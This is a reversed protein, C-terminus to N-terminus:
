LPKEGCNELATELAWGIFSSYEFDKYKRQGGPGSLYKKQAAYLHPVLPKAKAGIEVISRAAQLAVWPRDDLVQSKLVVFAEDCFGFACLAEAAAIQVSPSEDNLTKKLLEVLTKSAGDLSRSAIIAWYRAGAENSSLKEEIMQVDNRGVLSAAEMIQELDYTQRNQALEYPTSGESRIMYEAEPLFGVDRTEKSWNLLAKGLRAKVDAFRPDAAINQIEFPDNKLDYLEEIPKSDFLRAMSEPLEGTAKMRLLERYSDKQGGQIVGNRIYPLYPMYNRIYIYRDDMVARSMEFLDDARSREGYVYERAPEPQTGLFAQGHMYEPKGMGLMNLVSPVLDVLSVLDTTSEGIETKAWPRYKPPLYVILPVHIGSRYMYRKYRPMGFGHDSFFFIITEDKLGDDELNQIIQGVDIDMRSILDYYRAWMKQFYPTNPYMGPVPFGAPDHYKDLPLGDIRQVYVEERNAAGEHTGGIVFTSYFPKGDPRKRWPDYTQERLDFVGEASFNWDTKGYNTVFYGADKLIEPLTKIFEPREVVSRLHQTGMSTSYVGTVFSSRSPACIPATSYANEYLIGESALRDLNPTFANPDGYCGLAPNIDEVNIWVINPQPLPQSVEKTQKCSFLPNLFALCLFFCTKEFHNKYNIMTKYIYNL